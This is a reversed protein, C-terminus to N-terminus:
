GGIKGFLMFAIVVAIIPLAEILGVSIFMTTLLNGRLEPQRAMAEVTRGTVLGDGIGAGLAGLGVALSAGLAAAAGVEM